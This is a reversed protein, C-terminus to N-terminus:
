YLIHKIYLVHRSNATSWDQVLQKDSYQCINKYEKSIKTNIAVNPILDLVKQISVM